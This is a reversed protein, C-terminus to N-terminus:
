EDQECELDVDVGSDDAIKQLENCAAEFEQSAVNIASGSEELGDFARQFDAEAEAEELQGIFDDFAALLRGGSAALEDHASGAADPPDLDDIDRIVDAFIDRSANFSDVLITKQESLPAESDLEEELKADQAEGREDGEDGIRDLERLYEDLTMAGGGGCAGAVTITMLGIVLTIGFLGAPKTM